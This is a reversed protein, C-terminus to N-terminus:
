TSSSSRTRRRAVSPAARRISSVTSSTASAIMACAKSGVGDNATQAIHSYRIAQGATSFYLPKEPPHM